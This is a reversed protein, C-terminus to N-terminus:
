EIEKSRTPLATFTCLESEGQYFRMDTISELRLTFTCLTSPLAGL